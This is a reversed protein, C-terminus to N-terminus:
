SLRRGQYPMEIALNFTVTFFTGDSYETLEIGTDGTYTSLLALGRDDLELRRRSMFVPPILDLINSAFAREQAEGEAGEHVMSLHVQIAFTRQVVYESGSSIQATAAGPIVFALPLSTSRRMTRPVTRLVTLGDVTDLADEIRTKIESWTSITM